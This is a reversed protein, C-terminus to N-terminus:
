YSNIAAPLDAMSELNCVNAIRMKLALNPSNTKVLRKFRLMLLPLLIDKGSVFSLLSKEDLTVKSSIFEKTENYLELNTLSIISERLALIRTNVKTTDVKGTNCSILDSYGYAVTQLTPAIKKAVAYEIFLSLLDDKVDNVWLPYDFLSELEELSKEAEEEDMISLLASSCLLHNEICYRPLVFLGEYDLPDEEGSLLYLDGDIIYLRAKNRSGQDNKCAEVVNGRGGLPFVDEIKYSGGFIRSLIKVFLKSYGHATDEIFVEIDNYDSYFTAKAVKAKLNRQLM